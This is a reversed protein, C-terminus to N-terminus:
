HAKTGISSMFTCAFNSLRLKVREQSLIPPVGFIQAIGPYAWAEKKGFNKM